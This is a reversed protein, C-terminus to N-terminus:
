WDEPYNSQNVTRRSKANIAPKFTFDLMHQLASCANNKSSYSAFCPLNHCAHSQVNSENPASHPLFLACVPDQHHLAREALPAHVYPGRRYADGMRYWHSAAASALHTLQETRVVSEAHLQGYSPPALPLKASAPQRLAATRGQGATRM